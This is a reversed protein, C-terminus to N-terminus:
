PYRNATSLFCHCSDAYLVDVETHFPPDTQIQCCHHPEELPQVYSNDTVTVLSYQHTHHPKKLHKANGQLYLYVYLLYFQQLQSLM